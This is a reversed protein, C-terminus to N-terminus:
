LTQWITVVTQSKIGWDKTAILIKVQKDDQWYGTAKTIIDLPGKALNDVDGIPLDLTTTRPRLTFSDVMVIFRSRPGLGLKGPPVHRKAENLWDTYPKPYYAGWRGVKPRAAPIPRVPIVLVAIPEGLVRQLIGIM